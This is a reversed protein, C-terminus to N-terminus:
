QEERSPRPVEVFGRRPVYRYHHDIGVELRYSGLVARVLDMPWRQREYGPADELRDLPVEAVITAFDATRVRPTIEDRIAGSAVLRSWLFIDDVVPEIGNAVLIGSEEVLHPSTRALDSM